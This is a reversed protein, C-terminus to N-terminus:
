PQLQPVALLWRGEVREAEVRRRVGGPLEVLASGIGGHADAEAIRASRLQDRSSVIAPGPVGLVARCGALVDGAELFRDRTAETLGESAAVGEGEACSQVFTQAAGHVRDRESPTTDCSALALAAVVVASLGCARAIRM